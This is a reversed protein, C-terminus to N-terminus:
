RYHLLNRRVGAERGEPRSGGLEKQEQGPLDPLSSTSWAESGGGDGGVLLFRQDLDSPRLLVFADAKEIRRTEGRENRESVGQLIEAQGAGRVLNREGEEHGLKAM